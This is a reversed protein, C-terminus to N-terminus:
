IKATGAKSRGALNTRGVEAMLDFISGQPHRQRLNALLERQRLLEASPKAWQEPPLPESWARMAEPVSRQHMRKVRNIDWETLHFPLTWLTCLHYLYWGLVYWKGVGGERYHRRMRERANYFTHLGEHPPDHPGQLDFPDQIDKLGHIEHDMYARIAEWNGIAMGLGGTAFELTYDHGSPAHHFGVGMAFQSQVGYQTVGRAEIVWAFVQEWPVFIPETHGEPVFCVERRQRNFRSAIVTKHQLHNHWWISLALALIALTGMLGIKLGTEFVGATMQWTDLLTGGVLPTLLAALLPSLIAPMIIGVFFPGGLRLQWGFVPPLGTGFSLYIDNVEGIAHAYDHPPEGTPLPLPALYNVRGGPFNQNDGAKHPKDLGPPTATQTDATQPM